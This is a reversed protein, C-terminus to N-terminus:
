HDNEYVMLRIILHHTRYLSMIKTTTFKATSRCYLNIKSLEEKYVFSDLVM